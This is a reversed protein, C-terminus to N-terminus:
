HHKKELENLYDIFKKDGQKIMSPGFSPNEKSNGDGYFQARVYPNKFLFGYRAYTLNRIYRAWKPDIAVGPGNARKLLEEVSLDPHKLLEDLTLNSLFTPLHEVTLDFNPKINDYSWHLYLKGGREEAKQEPPSVSQWYPADKKDIELFISLKEISDKWLSGTKLIYTFVDGGVSNQSGGVTYTQRITKFEGHRFNVNFLYVLDYALGTDEGLIGRRPAVLVPKGDVFARFDPTDPYEGEFETDSTEPTGWEFPFGIQVVTDPGFNKFTAIVEVFWGLGGGRKITVSDTVMQIEATKIPFVTVGNGSFVADNGYLNELRGVSLFLTGGIILSFIAIRALHMSRSGKVSPKGQNTQELTTGFMFCRRAKIVASNILFENEAASASHANMRQNQKM